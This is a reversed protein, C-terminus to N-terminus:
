SIKFGDIKYIYIMYTINGNANLDKIYLTQEGTFSFDAYYGDDNSVSIRYQPNDYSSVYDIDSVKILQSCAFGKVNSNGKKYLKSYVVLYNYNKVSETLSYSSISNAVGNYITKSTVNKLKSTAFKSNVLTDAESTTVYSSTIDKINNDIETKTYFNNKIDSVLKTLHKVIANTFNSKIKDTLSNPLQKM